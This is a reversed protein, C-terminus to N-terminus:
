CDSDFIKMLFKVFEFIVGFEEVVFVNFEDEVLNVLVRFIRNLISIKESM